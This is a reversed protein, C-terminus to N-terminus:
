GFMRRPTNKTLLVASHSSSTRPWRSSNSLPDMAYIVLILGEDILVRIFSSSDICLRVHHFMTPGVKTAWWLRRTSGENTLDVRQLHKPPAFLLQGFCLCVNQLWL